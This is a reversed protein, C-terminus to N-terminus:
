GDCLEKKIANKSTKTDKLFSHVDSRLSKKDDRTNPITDIDFVDERINNFDPDEEYQFTGAFMESLNEFFTNLKSMVLLKINYVEVLPSHKLQKQLYIYLYIFVKSFRKTYCFM